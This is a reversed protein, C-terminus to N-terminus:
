ARPRGLQRTTPSRRPSREDPTPSPVKATSLEDRMERLLRQAEVRTRARRKKRQRRGDPRRPLEIMAVWRGSSDQFVRVGRHQARRKAM